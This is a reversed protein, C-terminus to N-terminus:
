GAFSVWDDWYCGAVNLEVASDAYLSNNRKKQKFKGKKTETGTGKKEPARVSPIEWCVATSETLVKSDRGACVEQLQTRM